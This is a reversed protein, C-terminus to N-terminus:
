LGGRQRLLWVVDGGQDALSLFMAGAVHECRLFARRQTAPGVMHSERRNGLLVDEMHTRTTKLPWRETKTAM